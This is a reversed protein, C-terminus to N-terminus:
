DAPNPSKAGGTQLHKLQVPDPARRERGNQGHTFEASTRKIESTASNVAAQFLM